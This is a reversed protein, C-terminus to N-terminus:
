SQSGVVEAIFAAVQDIMESGSVLSADNHDAGPVVVLQKPGVALEFIERSQGVPVISDDDGAVVMTPVQLLGIREDSPFRDKLLPGVPLWPYHHRGIATLSTFPSRLVLVSPPHESALEVAVASGLSEGFYVLATNPARERVFALAARADHALGDETPHGPNGGYGRYDTLLVGLGHTTLRTGLSARDFRNGANGNFVIVVPQGPEPPRYWAGHGLDDETQYSVGEWGPGMVSLSPTARDPFYILRRQVAWLGAVSAVVVALVTLLGLARRRTRTTM